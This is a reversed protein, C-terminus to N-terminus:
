RRKWAKAWKLHELAESKFLRDLHYTIAVPTRQHFRAMTLISAKLEGIINKKEEKSWTAGRRKEVDKEKGKEKERILIEERVIKRIEREMNTIM